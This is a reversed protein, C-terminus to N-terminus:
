LIMDLGVRSNMENRKKKLVDMKMVGEYYRQNTRTDILAPEGDVTRIQFPALCSQASKAM